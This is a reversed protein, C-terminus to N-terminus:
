VSDLAELAELFAEKQSKPELIVGKPKTYAIPHSDEDVLITIKVVALAQQSHAAAQLARIIRLWESLHKIDSTSTLTISTPATM